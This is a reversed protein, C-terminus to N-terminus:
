RNSEKINRTKIEQLLVVVIQGTERDVPGGGAERLTDLLDADSLAAVDPSILTQLSALTM